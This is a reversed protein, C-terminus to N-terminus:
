GKLHFTGTEADFYSEDKKYEKFTLYGPNDKGGDVHAYEISIHEPDFETEAGGVLSNSSSFM